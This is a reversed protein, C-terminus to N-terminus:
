QSKNSVVDELGYGETAEGSAQPRNRILMTGWSQHLSFLPLGQRM